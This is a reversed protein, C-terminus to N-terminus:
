NVHSSPYLESLEKTTLRDCHYDLENKLMETYLDSIGMADRIALTPDSRAPAQYGNCQFLFSGFDIFYQLLAKHEGLTEIAEKVIRKFQTRDQDLRHLVEAHQEANMEPTLPDIYGCQTDLRFMFRCFTEIEASVEHLKDDKSIHSAIYLFRPALTYMDYLDGPNTPIPPTSFKEELHILYASIAFISPSFDEM